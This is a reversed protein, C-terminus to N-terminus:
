RYFHGSTLAWLFLLLIAAMVPLGFWLIRRSQVLLDMNRDQILRAREALEDGRKGQAAVIDLLKRQVELNAVQADRLEALLRIMKEADDHEM